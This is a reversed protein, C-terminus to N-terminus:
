RRRLFAKVFDEFSEGGEAEGEQLEKDLLGRLERRERKTPRGSGRERQPGSERDQRAAQAAAEYEEPPTLDVLFEEVRKAGVRKTLLVKVEITRTLPGRRIEIVDGV